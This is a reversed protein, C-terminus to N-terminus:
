SRRRLVVNSRGKGDPGLAYLYPAVVDEPAPHADMPEAPYHLRRDQTEVPGPDIGFVRVPSAGGLHYEDAVIHMLAEQGAKAVGYGGWFAREARDLSFVLVPDPALRLVPLCWQTLFFPAILNVAMVDRWLAPDIHEFPTLAGIMGANNVLGDLRGYRQKVREAFARYDTLTATALDMTVMDAPLAGRGRDALTLRLDELGEADRDLAIVTAGVWAAALALARGIGSAAGTIAIVRGALLDPKPAYGLLAEFDPAVEPAKEATATANM